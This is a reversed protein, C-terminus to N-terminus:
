RAIQYSRMKKKAWATRLLKELERMYLKRTGEDLSYSPHSNGIGDEASSIPVSTVSEIPRTSLSEREKELGCGRKEMLPIKADQKEKRAQRALSYQDKQRLEKIARQFIAHVTLRNDTCIRNMVTGFSEILIDFIQTIVFKTLVRHWDSKSDPIKWWVISQHFCIMIMDGTNRM